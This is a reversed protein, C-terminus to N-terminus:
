ANETATRATEVLTEGTGEETYRGLMVGPTPQETMIRRVAEIGDMGPMKVDMTVVDPRHERVVGIAQKGNRAKGVVEFGAEEFYSAVQSQTFHSDDVVPVRTM